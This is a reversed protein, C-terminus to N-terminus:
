EHHAGNGTGFQRRFTPHAFVQTPTGRVVAKHDRDLFLIEDAVRTALGIEHTIAVIGMSRAHALQALQLMTEEEAVADMAATPEDLFALDPQGALMRALLVRQKQGESLSSFLRDALDGAGADALAAACLERRRQQGSWGLFNWGGLLGWRVVDRARLPLNRDFASAQAIYSVCVDPRARLIRGSVAPILGLVTKFFTSKGSGNRGVILLLTGRRIEVSCPPLLAQGGYGVVLDECRLLVDAGPPPAESHSDHPEAM